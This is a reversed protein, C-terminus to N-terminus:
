KKYKSDKSLDVSGNKQTAQEVDDITIDRPFRLPERPYREIM